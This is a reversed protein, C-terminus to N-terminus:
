GQAAAARVANYHQLRAPDNLCDLERWQRAGDQSRGEVLAM